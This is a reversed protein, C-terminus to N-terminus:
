NPSINIFPGTPVRSQSSGGGGGVGASYNQAAADGDNGGSGGRRRCDQAVVCRTKASDHLRSQGEAEVCQQAELADLLAWFVPDAGRLACYVSRAGAVDVRQLILQARIVGVAIDAKQRLSAGKALAVFHSALSPSGLLRDTVASSLEKGGEPYSRLLAVLGAQAEDTFHQAPLGHLPAPGESTSSDSTQAECAGSLTQAAVFFGLVIKKM